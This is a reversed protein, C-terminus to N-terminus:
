TDGTLRNEADGSYVAGALLLIGVGAIALTFVTQMVASQKTGRINIFVIFAAMIVGIAVWSAYVDFGASTYMYGKYRHPFIYQLITPFSCAEYCVVGIYSLILAWICIYSGNAGFAMYSFVQEGGCQPMSTTLSLFLNM